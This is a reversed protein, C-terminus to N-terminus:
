EFTINLKTKRKRKENIAENDLSIQQKFDDTYNILLKLVKLTNNEQIACVMCMITCKPINNGCMKLFTLENNARLAKAIVYSVEDTYNLATNSIDLKKLNTKNEKLITFITIAATSSLNVGDIYLKVLSPLSLINDFLEREQGLSHNNSIDLWEVRCTKVIDVLYNNSSSSLDNKYLWLKRISVSSKSSQLFNHLIKIGADRIHCGALSLFNWQKDCNHTILIAITEIDNASLMHSSVNIRRDTGDSFKEEIISCMDDDGCDSFCRFLLLNKLHDSPIDDSIPEKKSSVLRRLTERKGQTLSIYFSVVNLYTNNDDHHYIKNLIAFEKDAKPLNIIYCAALFEQVSVFMFSFKPNKSIIEGYKVPKLLGFGLDDTSRTDIDPCLNKIEGLSFTQINKKLAKYALKSLNHIIKSYHDPLNSFDTIDTIEEELSLGHKLTYRHVIKCIFLNHLKTSNTPLTSKLEFMTVLVSMNFPIFCFSTVTPDTGRYKNLADINGPEGVPLVSNKIFDDQGQEDFGIIECEFTTSLKESAHPRSSIVISCYPLTYRHLIDAIFGRKQLKTPYEDFGDLLLVVSKGQEEELKKEYDDIKKSDSYCYFYHVLKKLSDIKQVKRDKLRLM